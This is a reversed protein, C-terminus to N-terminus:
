EHVLLIEDKTAERADVTICRQLLGSSELDSWTREIREPTEPHNPNFENVHQLMRKDYVLGTRCPLFECNHM